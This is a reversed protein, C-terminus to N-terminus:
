TVNVGGFFAICVRSSPGLEALTNPPRLWFEILITRVFVSQSGDKDHEHGSGLEHSVIIGM